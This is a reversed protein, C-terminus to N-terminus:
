GVSAAYKWENEQGEPNREQEKDSQKGKTRGKVVELWTGGERQRGYNNKGRRLPM